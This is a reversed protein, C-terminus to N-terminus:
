KGRAAVIRNTIESYAQDSIARGDLRFEYEDGSYAQISIKKDDEREFHRIQAYTWTRSKDADTIDEFRVGSPDIILKGRDGDHRVDFIMESAKATTVTQSTTVSMPTVTQVTAVGGDSTGIVTVKAPANGLKNTKVIEVVRTNSPDDFRIFQGDATVLGFATTTPTVPCEVSETRTTETKKTVSRDSNVEQSSETRQTHSSQCAADVLTGNWTTKTTTTTEIRSQGFAFAAILPIMMLTTKM